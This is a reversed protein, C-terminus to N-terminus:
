VAYLLPQPLDSSDFYSDSDQQKARLMLDRVRSFDDRKGLFEVGAISPELGPTTSSLDLLRQRILQLSESRTRRQRGGQRSSEVSRKGAVQYQCYPGLFGRPCRCRCHGWVSNDVRLRGGNACPVGRCLGVSRAHTESASLILILLLAICPLKALPGSKIFSTSSIIFFMRDVSSRVGKPLCCSSSLNWIHRPSESPRLTNIIRVSNCFMSLIQSSTTSSEQQLNFELQHCVPRQSIESEHAPLRKRISSRTIVETHDSVSCPTCHSHKACARRTQTESNKSSMSSTDPEM